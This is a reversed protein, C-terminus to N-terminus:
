TGANIELYKFNIKKAVQSAVDGDTEEAKLFAVVNKILSIERGKDIEMYIPALSAPIAAPDDFETSDLVYAWSRWFGKTYDSLSYNFYERITKGFEAKCKSRMKYM